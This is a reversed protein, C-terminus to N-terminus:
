VWKSPRRERSLEKLETQEQRRLKWVRLNHMISRAQDRLWGWSVAVSLLVAFPIAVSWYYAVNNDLAGFDNFNMGFYGSLFTLPLFVVTVLSLVRVSNSSQISITNFILDITSRAYNRMNDLDQTYALTHDCVDALYISALESILPMTGYHIEAVSKDQTSDPSNKGSWQLGRGRSAAHSSPGITLASEGSIMNSTVSKMTMDPEMTASSVSSTVSNAGRAGERMSAIISTIPVISNRFMTIESFIMHLDRTHVMSPALIAELELENMRARYAGLIPSCQDVVTDIIAQALIAPDASEKLITNARKDTLRSLIPEEISHGQSEFFSIVTSDTTLFLSVQEVGIMKNQAALPRLYSLNDGQTAEPLSDDRLKQSTESQMPSMWKYISRMPQSEICEAMNREEEAVHQTMFQTDGGSIATSARGTDRKPKSKKRSAWGFLTAMWSRPSHKRVPGPRTILKHLPFACFLHTPYRDVKTRQPIDVMDEIALRHLKYHHAIPAITEWTLGNVNIWRVKSWSPRNNLIEVFDGNVKSMPAGFVPYVNTICTRDKFQNYDVVTVVSGISNLEVHMTSVDVGPEWGPNRQPASNFGSAYSYRRSRRKGIRNVLFNPLEGLEYSAKSQPDEPNSVAHIHPNTTDTPSLVESIPRTRDNFALRHPANPGLGSRGQEQTSDLPSLNNIPNSPPLQSQSDLAPSLRWRPVNTAVGLDAELAEEETYSSTPNDATEDGDHLSPYSPFQPDDSDYIKTPM